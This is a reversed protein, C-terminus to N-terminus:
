EGSNSNMGSVVMSVETLCLKINLGGHDKRIWRGDEVVGLV